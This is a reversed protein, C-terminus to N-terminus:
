STRQVVGSECATVRDAFAYKCEYTCLGIEDSCGIKSKKVYYIMLELEGTILCNKSIDEVWILKFQTKLIM